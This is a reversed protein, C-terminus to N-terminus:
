DFPCAVLKGFRLLRRSQHLLRSLGDSSHSIHVSEPGFRALRSCAPRTLPSAPYSSTLPRLAAVEGEGRILGQPRTQDRRARNPGYLTCTNCEFHHHPGGVADILAHSPTKSLKHCAREISYPNQPRKPRGQRRYIRSGHSDTLTVGIYVDRLRDFFFLVIYNM